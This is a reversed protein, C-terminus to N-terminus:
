VGACLDRDVAKRGVEGEDGGGGKGETMGAAVADEGVSGMRNKEVFLM